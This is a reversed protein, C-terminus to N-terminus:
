RGGDDDAPPSAGRLLVGPNARIQRSFENMNRTTGSLNQVLSDVSRAIAALAYRLDALSEDVEDRNEAIVTDIRSLLEDLERRTVRLEGSLDALNASTSEANDVIRDLSAVNEEDVIETIRDGTESLRESFSEVNAVIGPVRDSLNTLIPQVDDEMIAAVQGALGSFARFIDAPPQSPIESGPTLADRSSGQRIDLNASALLGANLVVVSDTPIRWGRRISLDVRFRQEGDPRIPVIDDVQGIAYGQYHVRTGKSLGPVEGFVTYYSDTAGGLGQLFAITVAAVVLMTLVFGGVVIYNVRSDRM